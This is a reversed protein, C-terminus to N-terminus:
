SELLTRYKNVYWNVSQSQNDNSTLQQKILISDLTQKFIIKLTAESQKSLNNKRTLCTPLCTDDIM